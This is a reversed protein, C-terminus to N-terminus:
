AVVARIVDDIIRALEPKGVGCAAALSNIFARERVNIGDAHSLTVVM